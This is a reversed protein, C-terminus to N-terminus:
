CYCPYKKGVHVIQEILSSFFQAGKKTLFVMKMMMVVIMIDITTKNQSNIGVIITETDWGLSCWITFASSLILYIIEM